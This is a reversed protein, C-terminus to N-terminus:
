ANSPECVRSNVNRRVTRPCDGRSHSPVGTLTCAGLTAIFAAFRLTDPDLPKVRAGGRRKLAGVLLSWVMRAGYACLFRGTTSWSDLTIPLPSLPSSGHFAGRLLLLRLQVKM